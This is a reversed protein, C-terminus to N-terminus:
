RENHKEMRVAANLIQKIKPQSLYPLLRLCAEEAQNTYMRWMYWPKRNPKVYPGYPGTVNGGLVAKLRELPQPEVQAAQITMKAKNSRLDCSFNGEGDLFGAAWALEREDVAM